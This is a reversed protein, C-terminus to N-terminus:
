RESPFVGFSPSILDGEDKFAIFNMDIFADLMFEDLEKVFAEPNALDDGLLGWEGGSTKAILRVKEVKGDDNVACIYLRNMAM